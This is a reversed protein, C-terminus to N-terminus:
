AAEGLLAVGSATAARRLDGDLSALPLGFRLALELYGADYVTLRHRRALTLVTTEDPDRDIHITLHRLDQLFANVGAESTRSRRENVLLSNRVEFWWLSPVHAREASLSLLATNAVPHNEDYFAWSVTVSADIVFAM